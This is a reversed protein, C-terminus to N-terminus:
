EEGPPEDFVRLYMDRVRQRQVEGVAAYHDLGPATNLELIGYPGDSDKIERCAFDIGCFSLGFTDAIDAALEIWRAAIDDTADIATGGASLNSIDLLQVTEGASPVSQRTKGLRALRAALRDDDIPVRTDRGEATFRQQLRALLEDVTSVGDGTVSLPIRRYASLLRGHLIVVRYDPLDVAEEVLVVRVRRHEYDEIVSRVESDTNCRWVGGGQAGDAPKLYVPFGLEQDIYGPIQDVTRIATFGRAALPPRLQDARWRLMFASGAPTSFGALALFHKTDAKNRLLASAASSNLGVDNGYTLRVKGTAYAIRTAYGYEPEVDISAM